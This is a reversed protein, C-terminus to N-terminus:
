TTLDIWAAGHFGQHPSDGFERCWADIALLEDRRFEAAFDVGDDSGRGVSCRWRRHLAAWGRLCAVDPQQLKPGIGHRRAVARLTSVPVSEEAALRSISMQKSRMGLRALKRRIARLTRGPLAQVISDNRIQGVLSLLILVEAPRWRTRRQTNSNAQSSM